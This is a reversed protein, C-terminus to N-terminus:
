GNYQFIMKIHTQGFMNLDVGTDTLVRERIFPVNFREMYTLVYGHTSLYKICADPDFSFYNEELERKWNQTYPYKLLFHCWNEPTSLGFKAKFEELQKKYKGVPFQMSDLNVYKFLPNYAMDRIVIYKSEIMNLVNSWFEIGDGQSLIEHLVSSLILTSVKHYSHQLLTEFDSTFIVNGAGAWRSKALNIMEASRDYGIYSIGSDKLISDMNRFLSGDACGYDIYVPTAVKDMFFLKDKIASSMRETYANLDKIPIMASINPESGLEIFDFAQNLM